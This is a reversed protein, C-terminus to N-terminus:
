HSILGALARKSKYHVRQIFLYLRHIAAAPICAPVEDVGAPDGRRHPGFRGIDRQFMM